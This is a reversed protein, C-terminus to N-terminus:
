RLFTYGIICPGWIELKVYFYIASSGGNRLKVYFNYRETARNKLNLSFIYPQPAMTGGKHNVM